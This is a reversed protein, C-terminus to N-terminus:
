AMQPDELIVVSLPQMYLSESESLAQIFTLLDILRPRDNLEMNGALSTGMPQHRAAGLEM